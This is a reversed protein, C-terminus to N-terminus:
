STKQRGESRLLDAVSMNDLALVEEPLREIGLRPGATFSDTIAHCSTCTMGYKEVTEKIMEVWHQIYRSEQAFLKGGEVGEYPLRTRNRKFDIIRYKRGRVFIGDYLKATLIKLGFKKAYRRAYEDESNVYEAGMEASLDGAFSDRYTRVRGGSYTRAELVTVDFGARDLEYACSLGALGAGIVIVHRSSEPASSFAKALGGPAVIALSAGSGATRIFERRSINRM